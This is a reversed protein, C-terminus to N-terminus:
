SIKQFANPFSHKLRFQELSRIYEINSIFKIIIGILNCEVDLM